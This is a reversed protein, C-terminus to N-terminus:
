RSRRRTCRAGGQAIAGRLPLDRSSTGVMVKVCGPLTAWSSAATNWYQFSRRPLAIKVRASKGPALTVKRYGGLQRPPQPVQATSPLGLYVQTVASGTRKSRNRVTVRATHGTIKLKSLSFRAYSLGFGFPYAPELNHRDFWRYGPFVGETITEKYLTGSLADTEFAGSLVGPYSSTSGATPEQNYSAPFTAPLRGGPDVDGWLVHAVATGGDQGPYWAELLAAIKSRWPTLVPAGTELVVVTNKNAAATDAILKDQDGWALQDDLPNQNGLTSTTTPACLPTLSMCLKDAGESETDGAVVIAVDAKSPDSVVTDGAQAARARIGQLLTITRSPNVQSSGYGFVYNDAAPGVVAITKHTGSLPLVGDNKLLTAGGEETAVDVATSHATDIKSPDNAYAARDFFGYAFLTRLYEQVRADLTAPSVQGTSLALQVLAANDSNSGIDYDMGSNLDSWPTHSALLDSEIIGTFGLEKRLVTQLTYPNDCGFRGNIQNYSCMVSAPHAQAIADAFPRLDIEHLTRPDVIVNTIQRGGLVGLLPSAGLQGEQDNLIYHKITAMVGESQLGNIWGIATQATLFPDEGYAEFTRGGLPTRMINVTPAADLEFGHGRQEAGVAAGYTHAMAQDFNAALAMSAPFATATDLLQGTGATRVGVAGDAGSIAPVGVDAAAGGTLMAIKDPQSMAGLLLTARQDPSLSTNCWAHAGCRGVAGAAAPLVGAVFMTAATLLIRVRSSLTM